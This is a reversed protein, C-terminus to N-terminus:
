ETDTGPVELSEQLRDAHLIGQDGSATLTDENLTTQGGLDVEDAGYYEDDIDPRGV